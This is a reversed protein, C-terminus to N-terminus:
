DDKEGGTIIAYWKLDSLFSVICGRVEEPDSFDMECQLAFEDVNIMYSFQEQDALKSFDIHRMQPIGKEKLWALFLVDSSKNDSREALHILDCFSGCDPVALYKVIAERHLTLVRDLACQAATKESYPIMGFWERINM